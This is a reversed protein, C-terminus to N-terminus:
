EFEWLDKIKGKIADRWRTAKNREETPRYSRAIAGVVM